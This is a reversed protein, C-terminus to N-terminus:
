EMTSITKFNSHIPSFEELENITFKEYAWTVNLKHYNDDGWNSPMSAFSTPYANYFKVDYYKAKEPIVGTANLKNAFIQGIDTLKFLASSDFLKKNLTDVSNLLSTLGGLKKFQGAPMESYQILNFDVTCEDFYMNETSTNQGSIYNIWVSFIDYVPIEINHIFTCSIEPFDKTYPVKIKNTGPMKYETAGISKGPFEVSECFLSFSDFGWNGGFGADFSDFPLRPLRFIFQSSKLFDQRMFNQITNKSTSRNGTVTVEEM